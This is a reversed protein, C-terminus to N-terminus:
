TEARHVRGAKVATASLAVGGGGDEARSSPGLRYPPWSRERGLYERSM